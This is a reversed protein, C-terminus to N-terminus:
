SGDTPDDGRSLADWTAREDAAEARAGGLAATGGAAQRDHRRSPSTWARSARVFWAAALATVVGVAVAVWPWATVTVAGATGVGTREAVVPTLAARPDALVGAATVAVLVGGAAVVGAVVWRGARGVLAVAATAALLVLAVAVLEPAATAGSVSVTVDGRLATGVTTSLWTPLSVLGTAAALLLLVGAASGRGRRGAARAEGGAGSALGGEPREAGGTGAADAVSM